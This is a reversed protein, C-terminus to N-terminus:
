ANREFLAALAAYTKSLDAFLAAAESALTDQPAPQARQANVSIRGNRIANTIDHLKASAQPMPAQPAEDEEPGDIKASPVYTNKPTFTRLTRFADPVETKTVKASNLLSEHQRITIEGRDEYIKLATNILSHFQPKSRERLAEMFDKVPDNEM